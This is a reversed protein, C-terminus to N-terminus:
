GAAGCATPVERGRGGGRGAGARGLLNRPRIGPRGFGAVGPAGLIRMERLKGRLQFNGGLQATTRDAGHDDVDATVEADRRAPEVRREPAFEAVGDDGIAAAEGAEEVGQM